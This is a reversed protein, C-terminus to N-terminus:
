AGKISVFSAQGVLGIVFIRVISLLFPIPLAGPLSSLRHSLLSLRVRCGQGLDKPFWRDQTANAPFLWLTSVDGPPRTLHFSALPILIAGSYFGIPSSWFIRM